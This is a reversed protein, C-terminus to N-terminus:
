WWWMVMMMEVTTMMLMLIMKLMVVMMEMLLMGLFSPQRPFSYELLRQTAGQRPYLLYFPGLALLKHLMVESTGESGLNQYSDSEEGWPGQILWSTSWHVLRLRGESCPPFSSEKKQSNTIELTAQLCGSSCLLFGLGEEEEKKKGMVSM